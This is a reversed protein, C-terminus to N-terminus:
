SFGSAAMADTWKGCGAAQEAQGSVRARHPWVGPGEPAPSDIM